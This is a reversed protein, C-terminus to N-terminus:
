LACVTKAIRDCWDAQHLWNVGDRGRDGYNANQIGRRKGIPDRWM